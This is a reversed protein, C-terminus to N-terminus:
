LASGEYYMSFYEEFALSFTDCEMKQFYFLIVHLSDFTGFQFNKIQCKETKGFGPNLDIWTLFHRKEFPCM